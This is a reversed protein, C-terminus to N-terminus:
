KCTIALGASIFWGVTALLMVWHVQILEMRGMLFMIPPTILVLLTIWAIFQLMTKLM